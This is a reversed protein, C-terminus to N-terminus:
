EDFATLGGYAGAVWQGLAVGIGGRRFRVLDTYRCTVAAASQRLEDLLWEIRNYRAEISEILADPEEFGGYSSGSSSEAPRTIQWFRERVEDLQKEVEYLKVAVGVILDRERATLTATLPAETTM